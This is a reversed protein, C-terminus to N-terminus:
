SLGTKLLVPIGKLYRLSRMDQSPRVPTESDSISVNRIPRNARTLNDDNSFPMNERALSFARMKKGWLGLNRCMRFCLPHCARRATHKKSTLGTSCSTSSQTHCFSDGNRRASFEGHLPLGGRKGICVEDLFTSTCCLTHFHKVKRLSSCAVEYNARSFLSM